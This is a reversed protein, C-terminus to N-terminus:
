ANNMERKGQVILHALGEAHQPRYHAVLSRVEALTPEDAASLMKAADNLKRERGDDLLLLILYPLPLIPLGQANRNSQAQALATPWWEEAGEFVDIPVGEASRWMAEGWESEGQYHYGSAAMKERMAPGDAAAVAADFDLPEREPVIYHRIAVGGWVAWRIPKLIPELDPWIM